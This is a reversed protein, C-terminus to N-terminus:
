FPKRINDMQGGKNTGTPTWAGSTISGAFSIDNSFRSLPAPVASIAPSRPPTMGAFMGPTPFASIVSPLPASMGAFLGAAPLGNPPVPPVFAVASSAGDPSRISVPSYGFQSAHYNGIGFDNYPERIYNRYNFRSILAPNFMARYASSVPRFYPLTVYPSYRSYYRNPYNHYPAFGYSITTYGLPPVSTQIKNNDFGRSIINSSEYIPSTFREQIKPERRIFNSSYYVPYNFSEQVKPESRIFTSSDYVPSNFSEQIKPENRIFNSSDYVPSNFSEEIKPETDVKDREDEIYLENEDRRALATVVM